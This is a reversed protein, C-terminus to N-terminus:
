LFYQSFDWSAGASEDLSVPKINKIGAGPCLTLEGLMVIGPRPNYLDVRMFAFQQGISQAIEVLLEADKPTQEKINAGFNYSADKLWNFDADFVSSTGHEHPKMHLIFQIKGNVCYFRYEPIHASDSTIEEELYLKPKITSYWWEGGKVNYNKRALWFNGLEELQQREAEGIPFKVRRATNWSHNAKLFYHGDPGKISSPFNPRDSIWYVKAPRVKNRLHKPIYSGVTLKDAPTPVVMPVFFKSWFIKEFLTKCQLPPAPFRNYNQHYRALCEMLIEPFHRGYFDVGRMKRPKNGQPLELPSLRLNDLIDRAYSVLEAPDPATPKDM